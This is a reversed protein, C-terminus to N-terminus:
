KEIIWEDLKAFIEDRKVAKGSSDIGPQINFGHISDLLEINYFRAMGFNESRTNKITAKDFKFTTYYRKNHKDFIAFYGYQKSLFLFGDYSPSSMSTLTGMAVNPYWQAPFVFDLNIAPTFSKAAFQYEPSGLEPGSMSACSSLVIPLVIAAFQKLM